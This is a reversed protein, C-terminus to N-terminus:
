VVKFLKGRVTKRYALPTQTMVKKFRACFYSSNQYGCSEAVEAITLNSTRLLEKANNLRLNQLYEGATIGVAQKFRRNLTRLSLQVHQALDSFVVDEQSHSQLWEQALIISEDQHLSTDFQAYAHSEFPRRIEPSFQGEVQKAISDGYFQIILHVMLDAVSNVSGACYINDAQTILYQQKLEVQPYRKAFQKGYLWHTTAPKHDLLGAEALFYSSTGVACMLSEKQALTKLWPLIAQHQRLAKIPNRWLAPLIVLDSDTIEAFTSTAYLILGSSSAVPGKKYSVLQLNIPKIRRNKGRVMENAANLMEIPLSISSVLSQELLLISINQM